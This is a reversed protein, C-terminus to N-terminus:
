SLPVTELDMRLEVYCHNPLNFAAPGIMGRIEEPPAFGGWSAIYYGDFERSWIMDELVHVLQFRTKAFTLAIEDSEPNYTIGFMFDHESLPDGLGAELELRMNVKDGSYIAAGMAPSLTVIYSAAFEFGGHSSGADSIFMSGAVFDLRYTTQESGSPSVSIGAAMLLAIVLVAVLWGEGPKWMQTISQGDDSM